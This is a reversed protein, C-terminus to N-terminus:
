NAARTKRYSDVMLGQYNHNDDYIASVLLDLKEPGLQIIAQHPLNRPDSLINRQHAPNQHFIDVSKGMIQDVPIPLYQAVTKLTKESAPNMYQINLDKDAYIVNIPSNETMAAMPTKAGNFFNLM